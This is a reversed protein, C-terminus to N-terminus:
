NCDIMEDDEGANYRDRAKPLTPYFLNEKNM